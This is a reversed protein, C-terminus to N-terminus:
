LDYAFGEPTIRVSLRFDFTKTEEELGKPTYQADTIEFFPSSQIKRGFERLLTLAKEWNEARITGAVTGSWTQSGAPSLNFSSLVVDSPIILALESLFMQFLPRDRYTAEYFKKWGEFPKLRNVETRLKVVRDQVDEFEATSGDLEKMKDSKAYLKQASWLGALAILVLVAAYAFKVGTRVRRTVIEKRPLFNFESPLFLNALTDINENVEDESWGQVPSKALNFHLDYTEPLPHVTFIHKLHRNGILYLIQPNPERFEQKFFTTTMAIDKALDQSFSSFVEPEAVPDAKPLFTPMSRAVKVLGDPGSVLIVSSTHGIWVAMFNGAPKDNRAIASALAVPLTTINRVKRHFGRFRDWLVIADEERIAVYALRRKTAGAEVKEGVQKFEVWLREPIALKEHANQGVLNSMFRKATKPFLEWAYLASSFDVNIYIEDAKRCAARLAEETVNSPPPDPFYGAPQKKLELYRISEEILSVCLIKKAV